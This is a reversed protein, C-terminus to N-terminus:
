SGGAAPGSTRVAEAFLGLAMEWGQPDAVGTSISEWYTGHRDLQSHELEVRTTTPGEAVFRVDVRSARDPDPDYRWPTGPGDLVNIQWTVALHHPPDWALVRGWDCEAGDVGREYWRGGVQPELVVDELDAAGLHHDRPCWTGYRATFVHFAREIPAEVTVSRLVVTDAAAEQTEKTEQSM